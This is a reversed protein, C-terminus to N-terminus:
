PSFGSKPCSKGAKVSGANRHGFITTKLANDRSTRRQNNFRAAQMFGYKVPEQL